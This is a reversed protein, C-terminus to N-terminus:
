QHGDVDKPFYSSMYSQPTYPGTILDPDIRKSSIPLKSAQQNENDLSSAKEFYKSDIPKSDVGKTMINQTGSSTDPM